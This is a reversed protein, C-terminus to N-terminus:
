NERVASLGSAGSAGIRRCVVLLARLADSLRVAPESLAIIANDLASTM